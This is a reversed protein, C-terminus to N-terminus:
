TQCNIVSFDKLIINNTFSGTFFFFLSSTSTLTVNRMTINTITFIPSNTAVYFPTSFQYMNEYTINEVLNRLVRRNLDSRPTLNIEM